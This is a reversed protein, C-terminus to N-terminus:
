RISERGWSGQWETRRGYKRHLMKMEKLNDACIDRWIDHWVAGYRIRPPPKWTLADAHIIEIRDGYKSKYHPGVLAIVNEDIEIVTLKLVEPYDLVQLCMGLGLGNVLVQGHARVLFEMHESMELPTDSMFLTDKYMLRTYKGPEISRGHCNINYFRAESETIVFKEVRWDRVQGEPIDCLQFRRLYPDCSCPVDNVYRQPCLYSHKQM